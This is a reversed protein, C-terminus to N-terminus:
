VSVSWLGGFREAAFLCLFSLFSDREKGFNKNKKRRKPALFWDELKFKFELSLSEWNGAAGGADVVVAFV